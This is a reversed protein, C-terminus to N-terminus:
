AGTVGSGTLNPGITSTLDSQKFSPIYIPNGAVYFSSLNTMAANVAGSTIQYYSGFNAPYVLSGTQVTTQPIIITSAM